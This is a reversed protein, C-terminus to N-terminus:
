KPAMAYDIWLTLSTTTEGPEIPTRSVRSGTVIISNNEEGRPDGRESVRLVRVIRMNLADAYATAEETAAAVADRRAAARAPKPDSLSFSPGRVQNAGNQFLSEVIQPAKALDRLRLEVQNSAVYGLIRPPRDESERRSDDAFRPSVSLESTRVDATPVGAARVAEILRNALASNSALAERASAGSTVVGATITMVDPRSRAEGTAQVSLLAEGQALAVPVPQAAAPAALLTGAAALAAVLALRM